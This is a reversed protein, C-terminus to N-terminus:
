GKTQSMPPELLSIMGVNGDAEEAVVENTITTTTTINPPITEILVRLEKARQLAEEYAYESKSGARAIGMVAPVLKAFRMREDNRDVGGKVMDNRVMDNRDWEVFSRADRTYWKLIYERLIKTIQLQTFPKVLHM